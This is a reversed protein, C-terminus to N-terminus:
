RKLKLQRKTKATHAMNFNVLKDGADVDYDFM